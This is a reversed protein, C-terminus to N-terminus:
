VSRACRFGSLTSYLNDKSQNWLVSWEANNGRTTWGACCSIHYSPSGHMSLDGEKGKKMEWKTIRDGCIEWFNRGIQSLGWPNAKDPCWWVNWTEESDMSSDYDSLKIGRIRNERNHIGRAGKEWELRTPLRLGAWKCYEQVDDWNVCVVQHDAKESPYTYESWVPTGWDAKDPPRHGTEYIFNEYQANSVPHLALYYSPLHVISEARSDSDIALFEGEPILLLLTGDKPNEILWDRPIGKVLEILKTEKKKRQFMKGNSM